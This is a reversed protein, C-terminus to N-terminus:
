QPIEEARVGSLRALSAQARHYSRLSAIRRLRSESLARQAELVDIYSFAGRAYGDRAFRLAEESSPIVRANLGEVELRATEAQSTLLARERVIARTRADRQYGARDREARARAVNDANRDWIQLPLSFGVVLATEDNERFERYGMQLDVDPIARARELRLQAEARGAEAEALQLDPAAVPEPFADTLAEFSALSVQFDGEGLWYSALRGRASAASRRASEAEIEAEALRAQARSGAMFPDRAARVRRDVAAALERAVILRDEAVARVAEAAQADIFAHEVEEIVDLRQLGAGLRAVDRDREAIRRRASHDGGLQLPQRLSYTTEARDTGRYLGSGEVNEQLVDLMPNTWRGAQRVSADAARTAADAAGISPDDALSRALATERTLPAEQAQANADCAIGAVSAVGILAAVFKISM